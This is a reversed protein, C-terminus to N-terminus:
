YKEFIGFPPTLHTGRADLYKKRNKSKPRKRTSFKQFTFVHDVYEGREICMNFISTLPYCLQDACKILFTAPIGDYGSSTTPSINLLTERMEDCVIPRISFLPVDRIECFPTTIADKKFVSKFFMNFGKVISEYSDYHCSELFM